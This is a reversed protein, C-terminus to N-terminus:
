EGAALHIDITVHKPYKMAIQQLGIIAMDFATDVKDTGKCRVRFDGSKPQASIYAIDDRHNELFGLLTYAIASVGACVIDNGADSYGAHGLISLDHEHDGVRYEICIM